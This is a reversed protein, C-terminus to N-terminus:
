GNDLWKKWRRHQALLALHGDLIVRRLAACLIFLAAECLISQYSRDRLRYFDPVGPEIRFERDVLFSDRIRDGHAIQNRLEYIDGALEGVRYSPQRGVYDRPFVFTNEGLLRCLRAKFLDRGSAALLSDIGIMWFLAGARFHNVATQLGIELYQFPNRAGVAQSELAVFTGDIIRSLEAAPQEEVNLLKSWASLFYPEPFSVGKVSLASGAIYESNVILGSWGKPCWIQFGLMATRVEETTKQLWVHADHHPGSDREVCMWHNVELVANEESRRLDFLTKWDKEEFAPKAVISVRPSLTGPTYPWKVSLPTFSAVRPM